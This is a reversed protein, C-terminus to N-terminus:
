HDLELMGRKARIVNDRSNCKREKLQPQVVKTTEVGERASMMVVIGRETDEQEMRCGLEQGQKSIATM